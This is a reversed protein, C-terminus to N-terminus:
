PVVTFLALLGLPIGVVTAAATRSIGADRALGRTLMAWQWGMVVLSVILLPGKIPGLAARFAELAAETQDPSVTVGRLVYWIAALAIGIRPFEGLAVWGALAATGGGSPDGNALRGGTFLVVTGLLWLVPPGLLAFPVYGGVAENAMVQPDRDITEPADCDWVEDATSTDGNCVWEPPHDPNEVSIPGDVTGAVITGIAMVSGAMVISLAGVVVIAVWLLDEPRDAGLVRWPELIPGLVADREM